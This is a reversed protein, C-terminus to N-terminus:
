SLYRISQERISPSYFSDSDRLDVSATPEGASASVGLAASFIWRVPAVAGVRHHRRPPTPPPGDFKGDSCDYM